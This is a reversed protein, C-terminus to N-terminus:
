YIPLYISLVIFKLLVSMHQKVRLLQNTLLIGNILKIFKVVKKELPGYNFKKNLNKKNKTRM